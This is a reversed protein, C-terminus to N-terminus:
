RAMSYQAATNTKILSRPKAPPLPDRGKGLAGLLNQLLCSQFDPGQMSSGEETLPEKWNYVSIQPPPSAQQTCATEKSGVSSSLPGPLVEERVTVTTNPVSNPRGTPAKQGRSNDPGKPSDLVWLLGKKERFCGLHTSQSQPPAPDRSEQPDM